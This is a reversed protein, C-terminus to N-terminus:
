TRGHPTTPLEYIPPTADAEAMQDSPSSRNRMEIVGHPADLEQVTQGDLEIRSRVETLPKEHIANAGLEAKVLEESSSNQL